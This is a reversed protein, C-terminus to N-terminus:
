LASPRGVLLKRIEEIAGAVEQDCLAARRILAAIKKRMESDAFKMLTDETQEYGNRLRMIENIRDCTDDCYRAAQECAEAAQPHCGGLRRLFGALCYRGESVMVEADGQCMLREMLLPMVVDKPFNKNDEVAEAWAKYAAQGGYYFRTGHLAGIVGTNMIRLGNELIEPVDSCTGLLGGVAILSDATEWWSDTVYYGSEDFSLGGAFEMNEQFLSWGLLTDGGNRYGTVIGAEPPGAIGTSILPHGKDLHQRVLAKFVEKETLSKGQRRLIYCERGAARFARRYGEDPDEYVMQIGVNAPDWANKNWRLRFAMGSSAMLYPYEIDQGLYNLVAKLCMPFPSCQWGDLGFHVQQVGYLICSDQDKRIQNIGNDETWAPVPIRNDDAEPIAPAYMGVGLLRRGAGVGKQRFESPTMGTERKFVRTFTDYNEFGFEFAIDTASKSTHALMFAANASKRGNIYRSLSIGTTQRFVERLHRYSFGTIRELAGYDISDKVRKEIYSTVSWIEKMYDLICRGKRTFM